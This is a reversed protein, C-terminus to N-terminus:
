KKKKLTVNKRGAADPLEPDDDDDDAELVPTPAPAPAPAPPSVTVTPRPPVVPAPAPAPRPFSASPSPASPAPRPAPAAPAAARPAGAQLAPVDGMDIHGAFQAGDRIVLRPTVLDAQVRSGATLEIGERAVIRGVFTGHVLVNTAEVTADVRAEAEVTIGAELLVTGEIRGQVQVDERGSVHGRVVTGAAIVTTSAM